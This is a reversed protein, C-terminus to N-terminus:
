GYKSTLFRLRDALARLISMAFDPRAKVLALFDTRNITLLSCDSEATATATRPSKDVLAMEGFVGGPGVKEVVKGKISIAVTGDQVVYMFVGAEGEKMLTKHRPAYLPERDGLEHTLAALSGPDFVRCERWRDEASLARSMSLTAVTLRIRDITMSMLMLAFEPMKQMTEQFQRADLAVVRCPTRALATASRPQQSVMAMEGVIEGAKVIDIMKRGRALSVEGELLFYAKDGKQDQSFLAAGQAVSQVSGASEFFRRAIAPDYIASKAPQTFDLDDTSM